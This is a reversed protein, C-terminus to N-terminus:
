SCSAPRRATCAWRRSRSPSSSARAHGHRPRLQRGQPGRAPEGRGAQLHVRHHRRLARQHHLDQVRQARVRRRRAPGDVADLRVRRVGLRARHHGLRRDQGHDAPRPGLAAEPGDHRQSLIAASTLGMSVGMATVMGPSWRCLEIIPILQFATANAAEAGGRDEGESAAEGVDAEGGGEAAAMDRAIQRAFRDRAMADMGFTRMLKRLVDYPPLDGHELERHLPVVEKDIFDRVAARVMQQEDSWEIVAVEWPERVMRAVVM